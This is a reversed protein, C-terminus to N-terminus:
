NQYINKGKVFVDKSAKINIEGSGDV